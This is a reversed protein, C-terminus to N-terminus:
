KVTYKLQMGSEMHEPIHCHVLWTGPNSMDVLLEVTEGKGILVTDKWVLNDSPKGNVSAVLFRQGHIHIPHQMAHASNPDNFIKLKVQQGRGFQWDIEDNVKGTQDDVLKWTLSKTTSPKNMSPMADEWEITDEDAPMSMGAMDMGSMNMGGMGPMDLSLTLSKDAPKALSGLFPQLSTNVAVNQRLSQFQTAYSNGVTNASVDITALDYTKDPTQNQLKFQGASKYYVDVITRESPGITVSDVFTERAYAGGDSGVLKMSAGPIALKFPRTNAVNTIYYRVVEGSEASMRYDIRGNVLMTNGFRGMLTFNPEKDDFPVIKGDEMLIDGVMLPVERNAPQWYANDKPEVIITGYLGLPQTADERVHPHYWYAGPDPFTLKYSFSGDPKVAEQTVGVVGDAANDARVGHFHVSTDQDLQSKFDVTVTSDQKVKLTPGPVTGNYALMQQRKGDIDLDVPQATLSFRQGDRLEVSASDNSSSLTMSLRYYMAGAAAIAVAAIAITFLLKRRKM